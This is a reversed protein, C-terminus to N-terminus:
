TAAAFTRVRLTDALVVELRELHHQMFLSAQRQPDTSAGRQRWSAADLIFEETEQDIRAQLRAFSDHVRAWEESDHQVQESLRCFRRALGEGSGEPGSVSLATPLEGNLFLPLYVSTCPTGFACWAMPVHASGASLSTVFSTATARIAPRAAHRCLSGPEIGIPTADLEEADEGHDSLLRRLFAIDIHGAQETLLVTARGWRRLADGHDAPTEHLAGAFDLKSGDDPWWGRAFAYPALGHSIRDWDQRITRVQSLARVEQIEQYVWYPGATEVAYAETPDAIVFAADSEAAGVSGPAGQGYRAVLDTLLDVGQRATRSRELTLRVLDTGLLGPGSAPLVPGLTVCGAAVQHENIGHDLGWLGLPRSGLVTHTQRVQPLELLQTRVKEGPAFARGPLQCPLQGRYASQDNNLGLLTLGDVAARGLAVVM